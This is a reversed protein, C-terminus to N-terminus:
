RLMIPIIKNAVPVSTQDLDTNVTAGALASNKQPLLPFKVTEKCEPNKKAYKSPSVFEDSRPSHKNKPNKNANTGSNSPVLIPNNAPAPPLEPFEELPPTFSPLKILTEALHQSPNKTKLNHTCDPVHCPMLLTLEGLAKKLKEMIDSKEAELKQVAPTCIDRSDSREINLVNNLYSLRVENHNTEKEQARIYACHLEPDLTPGVADFDMRREASSVDDHGNM